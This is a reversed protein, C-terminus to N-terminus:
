RIVESGKGGEGLVGLVVLVSIKILIKAAVAVRGHLFCKEEM